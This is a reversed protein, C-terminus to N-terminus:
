PKPMAPQATAAQRNGSRRAEFCSRCYVPKNGSPEFPLEAPRGCAACVAQYMKRRPEAAETATGRDGREQRRQARCDPCRTPENTFGRSQYFEQEGATFTFQRKCDRCIVTKDAYAM